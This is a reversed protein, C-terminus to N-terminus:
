GSAALLDFAVPDHAAFITIESGYTRSLEALRRNNAWEARSDAAATLMHLTGIITPFARGPNIDNGLMFADGAHLMWGNGTDIAVGSNGRSHGVLPIMLIEPAVGDLQRVAEFGFWPEGTVENVAWNPKHAWHESRYRLRERMSPKMAAHFEPEHVHITAWPFDLIGGTHDWDLHTLLIHRVDTAQYGLAEIQRIATDEERLLPRVLHRAVGLMEAPRHVCDLGYGSDVLVLGAGTEVLLCHTVLGYTPLTGCNLHHIKM